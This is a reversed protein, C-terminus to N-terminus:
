ESDEEPKVYIAYELPEDEVVKRGLRKENEQVITDISEQIMERDFTDGEQPPLFHQHLHEIVEAPILKIDASISEIFKKIAEISDTKRNIKTLLFDGNCSQEETLVRWNTLDHLQTATLNSHIPIGRVKITEVLTRTFVLPDISTEVPFLPILTPFKYKKLLSPGGTDSSFFSSIKPASKRLFKSQATCSFKDEDINVWISYFYPSPGQWDYESTMTSFIAIKEEPNKSEYRIVTELVPYTRGGDERTFRKKRTEETLEPKAVRTFKWTGLDGTDVAFCNTTMMAALLVFRNRIM